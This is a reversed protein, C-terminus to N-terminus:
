TRSCGSVMRRQSSEPRRNLTHVTSEGSSTDSQRSNPMWSIVVLTGARTSSWSRTAGCPIYRPCPDGPVGEAGRDPKRCGQAGTEPRRQPQPQTTGHRKGPGAGSSLAQGSRGSGDLARRQPVQGCRGHCGKEQGAGALMEPVWSKVSVDNGPVQAPLVRHRAFGSAACGRMWPGEQGPVFPDGQATQQLEGGGDSDQEWGGPLGCRSGEGGHERREQGPM